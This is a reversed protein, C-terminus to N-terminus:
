PWEKNCLRTKGWVAQWEKMEVITTFWKTLNTHTSRFKQDWLFKFGYCLANAIALDAISLKKVM